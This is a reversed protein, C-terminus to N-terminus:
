QFLVIVTRVYNLMFCTSSGLPDLMHKFSDSLSQLFVVGNIDSGSNTGKM